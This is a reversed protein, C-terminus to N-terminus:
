RATAVRPLGQAAGAPGYQQFYDAMLVDVMKATQDPYDVTVQAMAGSLWYLMRDHYKLSIKRISPVNLKALAAANCQQEYRGEMPVVMLKKGLFLAEAPCEFGASCLVGRCSALSRLFADNDIPRLEVNGTIVPEKARRSFVQWRVQSFKQLFSILIADDYAPLYVTYHGEDSISLRRVERRIVPTFIRKGYAKFHLGLGESCPAYHRLVARGKWDSMDPKPALAQLVAWQHSLSLCPVRRLRAAWASVPEFDNVVLDYQRVNLSGIERLLQLGFFRRLTARLDVNGGDGLVFSAGSVNYKVPFPQATDPRAGSVLVDVDGYRCLEPYIDRARSLHGNSGQIAYLIKM